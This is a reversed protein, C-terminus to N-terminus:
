YYNEAVLDTEVFAVTNWFVLLELKSCGTRFVNLLRILRLIDVIFMSTLRARLM